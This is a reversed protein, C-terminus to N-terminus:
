QWRHGTVIAIAHLLCKHLVIWLFDREDRGAELGLHDFTEFAKESGVRTNFSRSGPETTVRAGAGTIVVKCLHQGRHAQAVRQDREALRQWGAHVFKVALRKRLRSAKQILEGGLM